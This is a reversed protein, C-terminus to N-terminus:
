FVNLKSFDLRGFNQAFERAMKSFTRGMNKIQKDVNFDYCKKKNKNRWNQIPKVISLGVLNLIFEVPFIFVYYFAIFM